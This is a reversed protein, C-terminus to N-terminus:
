KVDQYTRGVKLNDIFQEMEDLPQDRNYVGWKPENDVDFTRYPAGTLVQKVGNFYFDVTGKNADTSLGLGLVYRNWDNDQIPHSWITSWAGKANPQVYILRVLGASVTMLFPYNQISPTHETPYSKWQFIVWDGYEGTVKPIKSSWGLYYTEEDNWTYQYRPARINRTECRYSGSVSDTPKFFRWVYRNLESDLVATLSAPSSCEVNGFVTDPADQAPDPAWIISSSTIQSELDTTCGCMALCASAWLTTVSKM